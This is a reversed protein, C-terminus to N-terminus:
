IKQGKMKARLDEEVIFLPIGAGNNKCELLEGVTKLFVEKTPTFLFFSKVGILNFIIAELHSNDLEDFYKSIFNQLEGM